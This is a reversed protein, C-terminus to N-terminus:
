NNAHEKSLVPRRGRAGRLPSLSLSLAVQISFPVVYFTALRREGVREEVLTHLLPLNCLRGFVSIRVHTVVRAAQSGATEM